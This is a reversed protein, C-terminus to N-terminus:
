QQPSSDQPPYPPEAQNDASGSPDQAPPQYGQNPYQSGFEQQYPAAAGQPYQNYQASNQPGQPANMGQQMGNGYGYQQQPAAQVPAPQQRWAQATKKGALLPLLPTDVLAEPLIEALLSALFLGLIAVTFPTWWSMGLSASEGFMHMTVNSLWLGVILWALLGIVPMQWIRAWQISGTRTRRAGIHIAMAIIAVIALIFGIVAAIPHFNWIMATGSGGYSGGSGFMDMMSGGVSFGGFFCMGTIWIIINALLPLVLTVSVGDTKAFFVIGLILAFPAFIAFLVAHAQVFERAGTLLEAVFKNDKWSAPLFKRTFFLTIGVFFTVNLFIHFFGPGMSLSGLNDFSLDGGDLPAVLRLRWFGFLISTVLGIALAELVTRVLHAVLNTDDRQVKFFRKLVVWILTCIVAWALIFLVSLTGGAITFGMAQAGAFIYGGLVVGAFVLPSPGSLISDDSGAAGGMASGLPMLFLGFIFSVVVLVGLVAGLAALGRGNAFGAKLEGMFAPPLVPKAPQAPQQAYPQGPQQYQPQQMPQPAYPQGSQPAPQQAYPQSQQQPAPQAYPQQYQPQQPPVPQQYQPQQMPQQAYQQGQPQVYPQQAYPQSQQQPAPQAYPQQYQPQQPPVPQQYQPQQMPQQAYQQGQQVQSQDAVPQQFQPQQAPQEPQSLPQEEAAEPETVPESPQSGQVPADQNSDHVNENSM